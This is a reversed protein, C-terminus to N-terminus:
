SATGLSEALQGRLYGALAAPWPRLRGLTPLPTPELVAWRPPTSARPWTDISVDQTAVDIGADALIQRAWAARSAMGANVVHHTGASSSDAALDLIGSALDPAYTPCGVEDAVLSLSGGAAIAARAAAIIKLPFDTGPAGFLWATRVVALRGAGAAGFAARALEEGLLKSQGYPNGPVPPDTIRYPMGDTRRGDFVENTSVVVLRIERAACAGALAGTAIGNRQRALEPERACGDVDTWAACHVVLDPRDRDLSREVADPADLDFDARTWPLAVWDPRERALAAVAHGLRGTSGTIALRM